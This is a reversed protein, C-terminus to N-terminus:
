APCKEEVDCKPPSWFDDMRRELLYLPNKTRSLSAPAQASWKGGDLASNCLAQLMIKM